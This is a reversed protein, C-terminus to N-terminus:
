RVPLLIFITLDWLAHSIIGPWVSRYKKFIWGWFLGCILAAMFLMFNFAIIHVGGYILSAIIWGKNDGFKEALTDQMFGRWFVEEAPGIIFVLLLGIVVPDLLSKNSYVGTVQNDAFTFIIGSIKDGAYFVIYLLAASVIGTIIYKPEFFYLRYNIAEGNVHNFYLGLGALLSAAITMEIWFNFNKLLFMEIWFIFALILLFVLPKIRNSM